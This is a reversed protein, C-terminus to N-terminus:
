VKQQQWAGRGFRMLFFLGRIFLDALMALWCGYLGMDFGQFPGFPGIMFTDLALWYALPLRVLFFGIWTFLIPVRTDGAGRLAYTFVIASALPPMAFAVLQLVPVGLDIIPQQDPKQCFVWFMEPAFTFFLAGMLSMVACALGFAMWGARSAEGPRNAGLNQGVLTTWWRPQRRASRPALCIASGKGPSPSAM